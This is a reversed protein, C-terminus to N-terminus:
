DSIDGAHEDNKWDENRFADLGHFFDEDWIAKGARRPSDVFHKNREAFHRSIAVRM